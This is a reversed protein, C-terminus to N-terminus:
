CIVTYTQPPIVGDCLYPLYTLSIGYHTLTAPTYPRFNLCRRICFWLIIDFIRNSEILQSKKALGTRSSKGDLPM